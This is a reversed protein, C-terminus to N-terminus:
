CKIGDQIEAIKASSIGAIGFFGLSEVFFIVFAGAVGLMEALGFSIVMVALQPINIKGAFTFFVQRGTQDHAAVIGAYRDQSIHTQPYVVFVVQDFIKHRVDGIDIDTIEAAMDAGTGGFGALLTSICTVAHDIAVFVLEAIIIGGRHPGSRNFQSSFYEADAPTLALQHM